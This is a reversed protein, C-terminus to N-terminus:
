VADCGAEKNFLFHYVLRNKIIVQILVELEKYRVMRMLIRLRAQLIDM